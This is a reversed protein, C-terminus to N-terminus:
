FRHLNDNEQVREFLNEYYLKSQAGITQIEAKFKLSNFSELYHENRSKNLESDTKLNQFLKSFM